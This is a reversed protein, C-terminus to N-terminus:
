TFKNVADVSSQLAACGRYGSRAKVLLETITEPLKAYLTFDVRAMKGTLGRGVRQEGTIQVEAHEM